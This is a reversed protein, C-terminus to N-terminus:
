IEIILDLVAVSDLNDFIQTNDSISNLAKNKLEHNIETLSDLIIKKIM